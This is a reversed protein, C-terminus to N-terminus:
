YYKKLSLKTKRESCSISPFSSVNWKFLLFSFWTDMNHSFNCSVIGCIKKDENYKGDAMYWSFAFLFVSIILFRDVGQFSDRSGEEEFAFDLDWSRKMFLLVLFLPPCSSELISFLTLARTPRFIQGSPFRLVDFTPTYEKRGERRTWLSFGGDFPLISSSSPPLLLFPSAAASAQFSKAPLLLRPLSLHVCLPRLDLVM